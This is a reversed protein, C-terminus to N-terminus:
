LTIRWAVAGSAVALAVAEWPKNDAARIRRGGMAYAAPRSGLVFVVHDTTIFMWRARRVLPADFTVTWEIVGKLSVKTLQEAHDDDLAVLHLILIPLPSPPSTRLMRTCVLQPRILEIPTAPAPQLGHLTQRLDSEGDRAFRLHAVDGYSVRDELSVEHASSDAPASPAPCEIGDALRHARPLQNAREVVLLGPVVSAASVEVSRSRKRWARHVREGVWALVVFGALWWPLHRPEVGQVFLVAGFAATGLAYAGVERWREM